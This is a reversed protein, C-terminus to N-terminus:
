FGSDVAFQSLKSPNFCCSPSKIEPFVSKEKSLSSTVPENNFLFFISRVTLFTSILNMFFYMTEGILDPITITTLDAASYM